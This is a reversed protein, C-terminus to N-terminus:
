LLHGHIQAHVQELPLFNAVKFTNTSFNFFEGQKEDVRRLLHRVLSTINGLGSSNRLENLLGSHCPELFHSTDRTTQTM